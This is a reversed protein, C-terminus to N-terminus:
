IRVESMSLLGKVAWVALLTGLSVPLLAALLAGWVLRSFRTRKRSDVLIIGISFCIAPTVMLMLMWFLPTASWDSKFASTAYYTCASAFWLGSFILLAISLASTSVHHRSLSYKANM